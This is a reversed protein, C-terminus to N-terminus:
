WAEATGAGAAEQEAAEETGYAQGGDRTSPEALGM